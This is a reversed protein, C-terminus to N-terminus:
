LALSVMGNFTSLAWNTYPGFIGIKLFDSPVLGHMDHLANIGVSRSEESAHKTPIRGFSLNELCLDFTFEPVWRNM